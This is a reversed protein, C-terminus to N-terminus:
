KLPITLSFRAGRRYEKDLTLRGKLLGALLRGIYLGLGNGQTTSDVKKFRAFIADEEERPIGIGTDTATFTIKSRDGALEHALTITGVDTFKAANLLMILLIQEVKHPDTAIQFDPQNENLYILQVGPKVHKGVLDLTFNCLENVSVSNIRISLRGNEMSPLDLVDNVLTLLLDTNLDLRNAYNNIYERNDEFAYDSVLRSYEVIATLPIRLKHSMNNVFDNKFRDAAKAQDRAEILKQQTAKLANREELLSNRAEYLRRAIVRTRSYMFLLWVISAVILLGVVFLVVVLAHRRDADIQHNENTLTKNRERLRKVEYLTQLEHLGLDSNADLQESLLDHRLRLGHLLNYKDGAGSAAKVLLKVFYNYNEVKNKTNLQEIILPIAERYRKKAMYYSITSHRNLDENGALLKNTALINLMRNYYMEVEEDTLVDYCMLINHYCRYKAGDYNRFKRGQSEHLKDFKGTVELIKKNAKIAEDYFEHKFYYRAAENYFLSRLPLEEAPLDEILGQLEKLYKVLLEGEAESRLYACLCFLYEIREFTTLKGTDKYRSLEELLQQRREDEHLDRIAYAAYRVKIYLEMRRREESEPLGELMELLVPEMEREGEYFSALQFMAGLMAVNNNARRATSYIKELMGRRDNYHTCDLIDFMVIVSDAPSTLSALVQRLSDTQHNSAAAGVASLAVAAILTQLCTTIINKILKM